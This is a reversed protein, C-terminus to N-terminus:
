VFYLTFYFAYHTKSYSKPQIVCDTSLHETVLKHLASAITLGRSGALSRYGKLRADDRAVVVALECIAHVFQWPYIPEFPDHASDFAYDGNEDTKCDDYDNSLDYYLSYAIYKLIFYDTCIYYNYLIM